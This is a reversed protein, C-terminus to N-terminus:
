THVLSKKVLIVDEIFKLRKPKASYSVQSKFNTRTRCYLIFLKIQSPKEM